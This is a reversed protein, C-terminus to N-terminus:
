AAGRTTVVASTASLDWAFFRSVHDQAEVSLDPCPDAATRNHREDLDIGLRRALWWLQDFPVVTTGLDPRVTIFQSKRNEPLAHRVNYQPYFRLSGTSDYPDTFVLDNRLIWDSFSMAVAAAQRKAYAPYRDRSGEAKCFKYLSWLRGVPERVVGYRKWRDYGAPVGDAEMHRYLLMANPYTKQIARRLTGSATRPVLLVVAEIEPIIIM